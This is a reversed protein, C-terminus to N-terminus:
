LAQRESGGIAAEIVQELREDSVLAVMWGGAEFPGLHAASMLVALRQAKWALEAEAVVCGSEDTLEYGVV